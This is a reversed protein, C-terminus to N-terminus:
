LWLNVELFTGLAPAVSNFWFCPLLPFYFPRGIGYQGTKSVHTETIRTFLDSLIESCLHCLFLKVVGVLSSMTWTGPWYLM